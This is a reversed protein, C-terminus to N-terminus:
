SCEEKLPSFSESFTTELSSDACTLEDAGDVNVEVFASSTFSSIFDGSFM